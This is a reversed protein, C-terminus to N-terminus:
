LRRLPQDPGGNLPRLRIRMRLLATQEIIDNQNLVYDGILRRNERKGAVYSM